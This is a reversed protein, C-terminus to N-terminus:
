RAHSNYKYLIKHRLEVGTGALYFIHRNVEYGLFPVHSDNDLEMGRLWGGDYKTRGYRVECLVDAALRRM